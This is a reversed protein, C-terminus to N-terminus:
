HDGDTDQRAMIPPIQRPYPILSMFINEPLDYIIIGELLWDYLHDIILEM